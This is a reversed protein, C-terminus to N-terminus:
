QKPVVKDVRDVFKIGLEELGDLIPNYLEPIIPINLGPNLKITGELVGRICIGVPYCVTKEMASHGKPDGFCVLQTTAYETRDPFDFIYEHRMAIMDKEGEAYQWKQTCLHCLADLITNKGEPIKEKSFLGLWEIRSVVASDEALGMKKAFEAKLNNQDAAGLREQMVDAYTKGSFNNETMDLYGADVIKKITDCWGPYRFTGRIITEVEPIKYISIYKCSDRNPYCELQGVGEVQVNEYNAFLDKGVISTDKGDRLFHADNRSALLVGRPAWSLKYGYPNNNDEPAPLGGCYSKFSKLTGGNKQAKHVTRMASMHDTGPDVGCENLLIVGKEIAEQELEKMFDSVYSTTFFHKKHKLSIKAVQPHLLYPLLSVIASVSPAIQDVKDLGTQKEVDIEEITVLKQQEASCLKLVESTRVKPSRTGWVIPFGYQVLYTILAPSVLGAGLILIKKSSNDSM